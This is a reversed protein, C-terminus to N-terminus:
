AAVETSASVESARRLTAEREYIRLLAVALSMIVPGLILGVLGFAEIGGFLAIFTLFPPAEGHRGVLLPRIVYDSLGVVVAAGYLLEAVGLGVHGTLLLYVGAPVWVLATGVGPLLSAVATLAGFFGPEPVGTVLFGLAALGGQALGTLVTGLLVSRGVRRFEDLLARTDRPNLPLMIEARRTLSSWNQLVFYMSIIFFFLALLSAFTTGAIVTALGALRGSITTAAEGLQDAVREPHLGLHTLWRGIRELAVRGAGHPQLATLVYRGLVIGRGVLLYGFGFMSASVTLTTLGVCTLAALAPRKWRARLRRYLGQVTFATLTGLLIGIGVPRAMWMIALSSLLAGIALARQEASSVRTTPPPVIAAGSVVAAEAATLPRPEEAGGPPDAEIRSVSIPPPVSGSAAAAAAEDIAAVAQSDTAPGTGAAVPAIGAEIIKQTM